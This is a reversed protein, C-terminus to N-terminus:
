SNDIENNKLLEKLTSVDEKTLNNSKVFNSVLLSLSGKYIKNIFTNTVEKVCQEKTVLAYYMNVKEKRKGLIAKDVLRDILTRITKGSWSMENELGKIIESARLTGGDWIVEMIMWESDTIRNGKEL